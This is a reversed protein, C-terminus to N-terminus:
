HERNGLIAELALFQLEMGANIVTVDRIQRVLGRSFNVIGRVGAQTLREVTAQVASAPVALVVAQIGMVPLRQPLEYAPFAPIGLDLQDLRNPKADFVADVRFGGAIMRRLVHLGLEGMGVVAWSQHPGLKRDLAAVLDSTRYSRGQTDLDLTALDKRVLSGDEGLFAAVQSSSLQEEGRQLRQDALERSLVLRRLAPNWPQTSM